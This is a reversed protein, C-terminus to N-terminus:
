TDLAAAAIGAITLEVTPNGGRGLTWSASLGSFALVWQLLRKREIFSIDAVIQLRRTLSGPATAVRLEKDHAVDVDPNNFLNAYDFGREGLLGVPDIALWGRERGDLINRHHIDGHLPITERPEAFLEAATAAAKSLVGGHKCAATELARFYVPLPTLEPPAGARQTHLRAIADCVIRTAEDDQGTCAMTALDRDGTLRELLLIPGDRAMVRAAGDGGYWVLLGAARHAEEGTPVKLMAPEGGSLVPLLQSRSFPSEFRPGDAVLSWREIWPTFIDSLTSM